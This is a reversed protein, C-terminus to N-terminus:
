EILKNTLDYNTLKVLGIAKYRLLLNLEKKIKLNKERKDNLITNLNM